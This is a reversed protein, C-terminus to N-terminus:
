SDDKQMEGDLMNKQELLDAYQQELEALEKENETQGRRKRTIARAVLGLGVAGLIVAIWTLMDRDIGLGAWVGAKGTVIDYAAGIALLMLFVGGGISAAIGARDADVESGLDSIRSRLEKLRDDTTRTENTSTGM